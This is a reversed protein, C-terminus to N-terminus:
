PFLFFIVSESDAYQARNETFTEDLLLIEDFFFKWLADAMIRDAFM